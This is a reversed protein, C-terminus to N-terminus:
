RPWVWLNILLPQFNTYGSILYSSITISKNEPLTENCPLKNCIKVKFDYTTPLCNRLFSNLDEIFNNAAYYRLVNKNDAERLCDYGISTSIKSIPTFTFYTSLALLIIVSGIIAELTYTLGKVM